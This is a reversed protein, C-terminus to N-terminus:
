NGVHAARPAPTTPVLVYGLMVFVVALTIRGLRGLQVECKVLASRGRMNVDYLTCCMTRLIWIQSMQTKAPKSESFM